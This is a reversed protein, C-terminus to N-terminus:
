SCKLTTDGDSSAVSFATLGGSAITATGTVAVSKSINSRTYSFTGALSNDEQITLAAEATVEESNTENAAGNMSVTLANNASQGTTVSSETFMDTDSTGPVTLTCDLTAILNNGFVAGEIVTTFQRNPHLLTAVVSYNFPTAAVDAGVDVGIPGPLAKSRIQSTFLRRNVFFDFRIPYDTYDSDGISADALITVVKTGRVIGVSLLPSRHHKDIVGNIGETVLPKASSGSAQAYSAHPNLCFGLCSFVVAGLVPLNRV